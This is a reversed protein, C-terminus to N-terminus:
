CNGVENDKIIDLLKKLPKSCLDIHQSDSQPRDVYIVRVGLEKALAILRAEDQCFVHAIQEGRNIAAKFCNPSDPFVINHLHVAIGGELAYAKAEEVQRMQFLKPPLVLNDSM